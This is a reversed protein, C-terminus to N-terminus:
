QYFQKFIYLGLMGGLILILTNSPLGLLNFSEYINFKANSSVMKQLDVFFWPLSVILLPTISIIIINQFTISRDLNARIIISIAGLLVEVLFPIFYGILLFPNILLENVTGRLNTLVSFLSALFILHIHMM